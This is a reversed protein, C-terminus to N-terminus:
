CLAFLELQDVEHIAPAVPDFGRDIVLLDCTDGAALDTTLLMNRV